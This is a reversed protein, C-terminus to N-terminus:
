ELMCAVLQHSNPRSLAVDQSFLLVDVIPREWARDMM